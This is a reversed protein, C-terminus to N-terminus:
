GFALAYPLIPQVLIVAATGIVSAIPEVIASAQGYNFSKFCSMGERRLPVSVVLGEPFNQFIRRSVERTLFVSAEGLVTM